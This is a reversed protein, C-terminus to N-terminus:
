GPEVDTQPRSMQRTAATRRVADWAAREGPGVGDPAAFQAELAQEIERARWLRLADDIIGSRDVGPHSAVYGDVAALLDPDVTATIRARRRAGSDIRM